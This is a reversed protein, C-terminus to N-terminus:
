WKAAAVILGVTEGVLGAAGLVDGTFGGLRRRALAVVGVGAVVGSAVAVAGPLPRWAAALALAGVAGVAISAVGTAGLFASALGGESRAYPQTSVVGAMLTRSGCWLGGVLWPAPALSSIAAWRALVVAAGVAVAFGGVTPEAMVALRRERSLHPLLGDATDLLGDFHLMGTLALDAAVVLAAAVPAPWARDAVWWWGGLGLGMVAGVLPFWNLTGATPTAPGGLPTLFAVARRVGSM